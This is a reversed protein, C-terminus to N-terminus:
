QHERPVNPLKPSIAGVADGVFPPFAHNTAAHNDHNPGHNSQRAPKHDAHNTPATRSQWTGPPRTIPATIARHASM